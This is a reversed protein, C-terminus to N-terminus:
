ASQKRCSRRDCKSLTLSGGAQLTILLTTIIMYTLIQCTCALLCHDTGPLHLFEGWDSGSTSAKVLQLVLPRRTCIEPGRPLFDRGVQLNLSLLSCTLSSLCRRHLSQDHTICCAEGSSRACKVQRQKPQWHCCSSATGPPFGSDGACCAYSVHTEKVM